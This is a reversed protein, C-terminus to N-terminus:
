IIKVPSARKTELKKKEKLKKSFYSDLQQLREKRKLKMEETEHTGSVQKRRAAFEWYSKPQGSYSFTKKAKNIRAM